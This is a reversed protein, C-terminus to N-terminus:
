WYVNCTRLNVRLNTLGPATERIAVALGQDAVGEPLNCLKVKVKLNQNLVGGDNRNRGDPQNKQNM